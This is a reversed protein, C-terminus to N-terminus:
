FPCSHPAGNEGVKEHDLAFFPQDLAFITRAMAYLRADLANAKRLTNQDEVDLDSLHYRKPDRRKASTDLDLRASWGLGTHLVNAFRAKEELTLVIEFSALTRVALTLERPGIRSIPAYFGERGLLMRVMYNSLIEHRGALKKSVSLGPWDSKRGEHARIGPQQMHSVVRSLPERLMTIYMQQPCLQIGGLRSVAELDDGGDLFAENALLDIRRPTQLQEAASAVVNNGGVEGNGKQRQQRQRRRRRQDAKAAEAESAGAFLAEYRACNVQPHVFSAFWVPGNGRPWCNNSYHDLRCGNRRALECLSSGGAKSVHLLQLPLRGGHSDAAMKWHLAFRTRLAVVVRELGAQVRSDNEVAARLVRLLSLALLRRRWMPTYAERSASDNIQVALASLEEAMATPGMQGASAVQKHVASSAADTAAGFFGLSDAESSQPQMMELLVELEPASLNFIRGHSRSSPSSARGPVYHPLPRNPKNDHEDEQALPAQVAVLREENFPLPVTDAPSVAHTRGDVQMHSEGSNGHGTVPGGDGAGEHLVVSDVNNNDSSQTGQRDDSTTVSTKRPDRIVSPSSTFVLKKRPAPGAPPDDPGFVVWAFLITTIVLAVLARTWYPRHSTGM